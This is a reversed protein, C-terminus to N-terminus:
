IKAVGPVVGDILKQLADKLKKLVSGPDLISDLLDTVCVQFLARGTQRSITHIIKDADKDKFATHLEANAPSDIIADISGATKTELLNYLTLDAKEPNLTQGMILQGICNVTARNIHDVVFGRKKDSGPDLLKAKIAMQVASDAKLAAVVKGHSGPSLVTWFAPNADSDNGYVKGANISM